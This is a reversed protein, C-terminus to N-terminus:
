PGHIRVHSNRTGTSDDGRDVSFIGGRHIERVRYTGAHLGGFNTSSEVVTMQQTEHQVSDVIAVHRVNGAGWYLVDNAQVIQDPRLGRSSGRFGYRRPRGLADRYDEMAFLRRVYCRRQRVARLYNSVFGICDVGLRPDVDCYNTLGALDTQGFALAYQLTLACQEPSGVGYFSPRFALRDEFNFPFQPPLPRRSALQDRENRMFELLAELYTLNAGHDAALRQNVYIHVDAHIVQVGGGPPYYNVPLRRYRNMYAVPTLAGPVSVPAAPTQAPQPPPQPADQVGTPGPAGRSHACAPPQFLSGPTSGRNAVPDGDDVGVPGPVHSIGM